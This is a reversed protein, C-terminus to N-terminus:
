YSTYSLVCCKICNSPIITLMQSYLSSGFIHFHKYEYYKRSNQLNDFYFINICKSLIITLMQSYLIICIKTNIINEINKLNDFYHVKM